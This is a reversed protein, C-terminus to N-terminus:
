MVMFSDGLDPFASDAPKDRNDNDMTIGRQIEVAAVSDHDPQGSGDGAQVQETEVNTCKLFFCLIKPLKLFKTIFTQWLGFFDVAPQLIDSRLSSSIDSSHEFCWTSLKAYVSTTFPFCFNKEDSNESLAWRDSPAYYIDTFLTTEDKGPSM